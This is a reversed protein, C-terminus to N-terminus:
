CRSRARRSTGVRDITLEDGSHAKAYIDVNESNYRSAIVGFVGGEASIIAIRGNHDALLERTAAPSADDALLRPLQPVQIQRAMAKADRAAQAAVEAAAKDDETAESKAAKIAASVADRELRETKAVAISLDQELELRAMQGALSMSKEAVRLPAIMSNQVASKREAPAAVALIYMCLPEVRDPTIQVRAHGGISAALAMLAAVGAM